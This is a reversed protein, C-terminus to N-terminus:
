AFQGERVDLYARLVGSDNGITVTQEALENVVAATRLQDIEAATGAKAAQNALEQATVVRDGSASGQESEEANDYENRIHDIVDAVTMKVGDAPAYSVTRGDVKVPVKQALVNTSKAMEFVQRVDPLSSVDNNLATMIDIVPQTLPEQREAVEDSQDVQKPKAPESPGASLETGRHDILSGITGTNTESGTLAPYHLTPTGDQSITLSVETGLLNREVASARVARLRAVDGWAGIVADLMAQVDVNSPPLDWGTGGSKTDQQQPDTTTDGPRDQSSAPAGGPKPATNPKGHAAQLWQGTRRGAEVLHDTAMETVASAWADVDESFGPFPHAEEIVWEVWALASTWSKAMRNTVSGKGHYSGTQVQDTVDALIDCLDWAEQATHGDSVENLHKHAARYTCGLSDTAYCGLNVQGDSTRSEYPLGEYWKGAVRKGRTGSDRQDLVHHMVKAILDGLEDSVQTSGSQPSPADADPVIVAVGEWSEGPSYFSWGEPPLNGEKNNVLTAWERPDSTLAKGPRGNVMVIMKRTRDATAEMQAGSGSPHNAGRLAHIHTFPSIPEKTSKAKKKRILEIAVDVPNGGQFQERLFPLVPDDPDMNAGIPKELGVSKPDFDVRVVLDNGGQGSGINSVMIDRYYQVYTQPRVTVPRNTEPDNLRVEPGYAIFTGNSGPLDDRSLANSM